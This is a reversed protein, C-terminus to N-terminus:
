DNDDFDNDSNEGEDAGDESLDEHDARDGRRVQQTHPDYDERYIDETFVDGQQDRIYTDLANADLFAGNDDNVAGLANKEMMDADFKEKNHVQVGNRVDVNWQGLKRLKLEYQIRKEEDNGKFRSTIKLREDYELHTVAKTADIYSFNLNALLYHFTSILGKFIKRTAEDVTTMNQANERKMVLMKHEDLLAKNSPTFIVIYHLMSILIYKLIDFTVDGGMISSYTHLSICQRVLSIVPRMTTSTYRMILECTKDSVLPNMNIYLKSIMSGILNAHLKSINWYKPVGNPMEKEIKGNLLMSPLIAGTFVIIEKYYSAVAHQQREEQSTGLYDADQAMKFHKKANIVEEFRNFISSSTSKDKKVLSKKLEDYRIDAITRIYAILMNKSDAAKSSQSTMTEYMSLVNVDLVVASNKALRFIQNQSISVSGSRIMTKQIVSDDELQPPPFTHTLRVICRNKEVLPHFRMNDYTTQAIFVKRRAAIKMLAILGGLDFQLGERKLFGIQESLVLNRLESSAINKLKYPCIGSFELPIAKSDNDLNCARLMVRYILEELIREDNSTRVEYQRNSHRKQPVFRTQVCGLSVLRSFSKIYSRHIRRIYNNSELISKERQTMFEYVNNTAMRCCSNELYISRNIDMLLPEEKSIIRQMDCQIAFSFKRIKARVANYKDWFVHSKIRHDQLTKIFDSEHTEGFHEPREMQFWTLMPMFNPWSRHMMNTGMRKEDEVNSSSPGSTSVGTAKTAKGKHAAEKQAVGKLHKEKKKIRVNISHIPILHNEIYQKVRTVIGELKIKEISSWPHFSRRKLAHAICCVYNLCDNNRKAANLIASSQNAAAATAATAEATANLAGDPSATPLTVPFGEFSARCTPFVKQSTHSPINTTVYVVIYALTGQILVQNYKLEWPTRKESTLQNKRQFQEWLKSNAIHPDSKLRNTMDLIINTKASTDPIGMMMYLADVVMAISRMTSETHPDMTMRLESINRVDLLVDFRANAFLETNADSKNSIPANFSSTDKDVMMVDNSQKKFGDKDFGERFDDVLPSIFYGSHKDVWSSGDESITGQEQCIVQITEVYNNNQVVSCAIKHMFLPILKTDTKVCFLWYPDETKRHPTRTCLSCFRIIDRQRRIFDEQSLIADRIPVYPSQEFSDSSGFSGEPAFSAIDSYRTEVAINNLRSILIMQSLFARQRRLRVEIARELSASTQEIDYTESMIFRRVTDMNIDQLVMEGSLCEGESPSRCGTKDGDELDCRKLKEFDEHRTDEDLKWRRNDRVYYAVKAGSGSGDGENSPSADKLCAYDGDRVLRKQQLISDAEFYADNSEFGAHEMLQRMLYQRFEEYSMAVQENTHENLTDYRTPDHQSEFYVDKENDEELSKMTYYTRSLTKQDRSIGEACKANAPDNKKAQQTLEEMGRLEEYMKDKHGELYLGKNMRTVLGFLLRMNDRQILQEMIEFSSWKLLVNSLETTENSTTAEVSSDTATTKFGLQYNDQLEEYIGDRLIHRSTGLIELNKPRELYDEIVKSSSRMHQAIKRKLELVLRRLSNEAEHYVAFVRDYRYVEITELVLLLRHINYYNPAGERMLNYFDVMKPVSAKSFRAYTNDYLMSASSSSPASSSSLPQDSSSNEFQSVDKENILDDNPLIECVRRHMERVNANFDIDDGSYMITHPQIKPKLIMFTAPYSMAASAKSQITQNRSMRGYVQIVPVPLCLLARVCLNDSRTVIIHETPIRKRRTRSRDATDRNADDDAANEQMDLTGFREDDKNKELTVLMRFGTAARIRVFRSSTLRMENFSYVSSEYNNYNDIVAESDAEVAGYHICELDDPPSFESLATYLDRLFQRYMNPSDESSSMTHYKKMLENIENVSTEFHSPNVDNFQMRVSEDLDYMKRVTRVVPIVWPVRSFNLSQIKSSLPRHDAEFAVKAKYLADSDLQSFVKHMQEYRKLIMEIERQWVNANYTKMQNIEITITDMLDALQERMSHRQQSADKEVFFEVDDIAEDEFTIQNAAIIQTKLQDANAAASIAMEDRAEAPASVEEAAAASTSAVAATASTSAAAAAAPASATPMNPEPRINIEEISPNIDRPLGKYAFPIQIREGTHKDLVEIVDNEASVIQGTFIHPRDGGFRIDIWEGEVLGNQAAYGEKPNREVLIYKEITYNTVTQGEDSLRLQIPPRKPKKLDGLEILQDDRYLVIYPRKSISRLEKSHLEIIDDLRIDKVSTETM